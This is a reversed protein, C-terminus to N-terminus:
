EEGSYLCQGEDDFVEAALNDVTVDTCVIVWDSNPVRCEDLRLGANHHVAGTKKNVTLYVRFDGTEVGYGKIDLGKM